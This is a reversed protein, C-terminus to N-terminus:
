GADEGKAEKVSRDGGTGGSARGEGESRWTRGQEEAKGFRRREMEANMARGLLVGVVQSVVM